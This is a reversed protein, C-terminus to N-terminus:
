KKAIRNIGQQIYKSVIKEYDGNAVMQTIARQLYHKGEQLKITPSFSQAVGFQNKEIPFAKIGYDSAKITKGLGGFEVIRAHPSYYELTGEYGKVGKFNGYVKTMKDISTPSQTHTTTSYLNKMALTDTERLCEIVALRMQEPLMEGLMQFKKQLKDVGKLEFTIM